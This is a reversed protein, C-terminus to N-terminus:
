CAPDDAVRRSAGSLVGATAWRVMRGLTAGQLVISAATAVLVVAQVEPAGELGELAPFGALLLPVAGKLGGWCVLVRGRGDLDSGALLPFAVLPRVAVTLLLAVAIGQWVQESGTVTTYAAGLMAFLIAEGAAAFAQPVAHQRGDQGAWEDAVLLGALYVALFGSGNLTATAAGIGIAGAVVAVSRFGEELHPTRRIGLVLLRAGVLGGAIGVGLQEVLEVVAEGASAGDSGVTAVAVMMLSIGVPDNFGSEGELVTRARTGARQGRLASYVAAPDTPALAIGILMATEWSFGLLGHGVVALGGATAATGPLGLLLIPRASRRFAGFGTELGGQFLIGFLLIASIEELALTSVGEIPSIGGLGAVIGVALFAAPGPLGVRRAVPALALAAVLLGAAVLLILSFDGLAHMMAEGVLSGPV